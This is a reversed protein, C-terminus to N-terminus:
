YTIRSVTHRLFGVSTVDHTGIHGGCGVGDICQRSILTYRSVRSYSSKPTIIRRSVTIDRGILLWTHKTRRRLRWLVATCKYVPLLSLM